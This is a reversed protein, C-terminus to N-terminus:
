KDKNEFLPKFYKEEGKRRAEAAEEKTDYTGLYINKGNSMLCAVWRGSRAKRVGKIGSTNNKSLKSNVANGAKTLFRLNSKKNNLKNRDGHDVVYGNKRGMVETHFKKRKGHISASAYGWEDKTWTFEKLKEWDELDCLMTDGTRLVVHVIDNEDVTYENGIVKHKAFDFATCGCSEQGNKLATICIEKETGCECKCVWYSNKGKRDAKRLVELKGFHRGALDVFKGM